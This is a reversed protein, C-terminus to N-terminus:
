LRRLFAQLKQAGIEWTTDNQLHHGAGPVWALEVGHGANDLEGEGLLAHITDDKTGITRELQM